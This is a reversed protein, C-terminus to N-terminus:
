IRPPLFIYATQKVAFIKAASSKKETMGTDLVIVKGYDEDGILNMENERRISGCVCKGAISLRSLYM